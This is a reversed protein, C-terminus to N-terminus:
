QHGIVLCQATTLQSLLSASEYLSDRGGGIKVFPLLKQSAWESIGVIIESPIRAAEIGEATYDRRTVM